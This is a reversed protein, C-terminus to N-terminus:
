GDTQKVVPRNERCEFGHVLTGHPSRMTMNGSHRSVFHYYEGSTLDLMFSITSKDIHVDRALVGEHLITNRATDITFALKIRYERHNCALEINEGSAVEAVFLLGCLLLTQMGRM